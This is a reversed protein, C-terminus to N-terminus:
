DGRFILKEEKESQDTGQPQALKLIQSVVRPSIKSLMPSLISKLKWEEKSCQEKPDIRNYEQKFRKTRLFGFLNATNCKQPRVEVVVGEDREGEEEDDVQEDEVLLLM